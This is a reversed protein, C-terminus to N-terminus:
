EPEASAYVPALRTIPPGIGIIATYRILWDFLEGHGRTVSHATILRIESAM